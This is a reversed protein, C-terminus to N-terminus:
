STIRERRWTIFATLLATIMLALGLLWMWAAIAPLAISLLISAGALLMLAIVGRRRHLEPRADGPV